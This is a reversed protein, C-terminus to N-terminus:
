NDREQKNTSNTNGSNSGTSTSGGSGSEGGSTNSLCEKDGADCETAPQTFMGGIQVYSDTVNQGVPGIAMMHKDKFAFFESEITLTATFRLVLNNSEDRGNSSATVELGDPALMCDNVSTWKAADSGQTTGSYAICSSEFHEIGSITGNLEM